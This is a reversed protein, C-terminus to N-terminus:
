RIRWGQTGHKTFQCNFVHPGVTLLARVVEMKRVPDVVFMMYGGGGAGSVKGAHAGARMAIEYVEDIHPNSILRATQKKSRWSMEMSKAFAYFDGKLVSEKMLVAEQKIQQLAAISATEQSEVNHRQEDIIVASSRSVGTYFLVLSAELESIIWNKVRLPNVIVRDKAYFEIFNFGGFTAAYQDQKGGVLGVENREIEYALHAIDYEGLPLNLLEVFAKIMAVVLTSSSGLGSGPPADCYTTMALPLPVGGHFERVIRNYVGKHLDLVGDYPLDKAAECKCVVQQDAAVFQVATAGVTKEITAYAYKDITANLVMGGYLDCFPPVDSGGGGLGLRLPARARVIM